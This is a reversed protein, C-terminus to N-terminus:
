FLHRARGFAKIVRLGQVSEEVTTAVDGTQDQIQRSLRTYHKQNVLVAIIIPVSAVLVVLGLPWFMNLLLITVVLIQLTSVVLFTLGFGVFRRIRNLDNMIRSLLQGSEWRGHFAMPLRQLKAYLDKRVLTEVGVTGVNIVWRRGWQVVAETIGLAVAAI